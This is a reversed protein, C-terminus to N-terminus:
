FMIKQHLLEYLGSADDIHSVLYSKKLKIKSENDKLECTDPTFDSCVAVKGNVLGFQISFDLLELGRRAFFNRLLVNIKLAYRHIDALQQVSLITAAIIQDATMPTATDNTLSEYKAVPTPEDDTKEQSILLRLPFLQAKKLLLEKASKQSKYFTPIHYSSLLKFIHAAIAANIAAKNKVSGKVNGKNDVLDDTYKLLIEDENDTEYLAKGDQLIIKKM